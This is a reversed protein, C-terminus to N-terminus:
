QSRLLATTVERQCRPNTIKESIQAPSAIKV